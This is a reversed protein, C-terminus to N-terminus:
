HVAAINFKKKRIFKNSFLFFTPVSKHLIKKQKLTKKQTRKRKSVHIKAFLILFLPLSAAQHFPFTQSAWIPVLDADVHSNGTFKQDQSDHPLTVIIIM